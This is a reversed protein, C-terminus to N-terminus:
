KSLKAAIMKFRNFAESKVKNEMRFAFASAAAGL